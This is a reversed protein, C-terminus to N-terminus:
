QVPSVSTLSLVSKLSDSIVKNILVLFEYPVHAGYGRDHFLKIYSRRKTVKYSRAQRSYNCRHHGISRTFWKCGSKIANKTTKEGVQASKKSLKALPPCFAHAIQEPNVHTFNHFIEIICSPSHDEGEAVIIQITYHFISLCLRVHHAWIKSEPITASQACRRWQWLSHLHRM